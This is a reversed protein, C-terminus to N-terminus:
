RKANSKKVVPFRTEHARRVSMRVADSISVGDAGALAKVMNREDKNLRVTIVANRDTDVM